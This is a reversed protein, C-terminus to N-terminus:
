QMSGEALATGTFAGPAEMTFLPFENEGIQQSVHLETDSTRFLIRSSGPVASQVSEYNRDLTLIARSDFDLRRAACPIFGAEYSASAAINMEFSRPVGPSHSTVPIVAAPVSDAGVVIRAENAVLSIVPMPNNVAPFNSALTIGSCCAEQVDTCVLQGPGGLTPTCCIGTNVCVDQPTEMQYGDNYNEFYGFDCQANAPYHLSLLLTAVLIAAASLRM